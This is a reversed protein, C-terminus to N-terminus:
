AESKYLEGRELAEIAEMLRAESLLEGAQSRQGLLSACLNLAVCREEAADQAVRERFTDLAQGEGLALEILLDVSASGLQSTVRLPSLNHQASLLKPGILQPAIFQPDVREIVGLASQLYFDLMPAGREFLCLANCVNQYVRWGFRPGKKHPQVWRELGFLARGWEPLLPPGSAELRSLPDFREPMFIFVDADLWLVREHQALAERAWLLRAIDSKIPGRGQLKENLWRPNREFLEDGELQYAYARM